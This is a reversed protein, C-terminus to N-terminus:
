FRNLKRGMRLKRAAEAQNGPEAPPQGTAGPTGRQRMERAGNRMLMRIGMRVLMNILRNTNM